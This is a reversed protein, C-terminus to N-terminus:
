SSTTKGSSSVPLLKYKTYGFERATKRRHCNACRVVCKAIEKSILQRCHGTMSSVNWKKTGSVHDFDLVIPDREGCDVCPHSKLHELLFVMNRQRNLLSSERIAIQRARSSRYHKKDKEKSCAKCYGQRGDAKNKNLGFEELTKLKGCSWCKKKM